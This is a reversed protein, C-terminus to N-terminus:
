KMTLVIDIKPYLLCKPHENLVHDLAHEQNDYYSWGNHTINHFIVIGRTLRVRYTTRDRDPNIDDQLTARLWKLTVKAIKKYTCFDRM